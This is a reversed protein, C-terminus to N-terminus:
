GIGRENGPWRRCTPPRSRWGARLSPRPARWSCRRWSPHSCRRGAWGPRTGSPSDAPRPATWSARARIRTFASGPSQVSHRARLPGGSCNFMSSTPGQLKPRTKTRILPPGDMAINGRREQRVRKVWDSTEKNHPRPRNTLHTNCVSKGTYLRTWVCAASDEKM